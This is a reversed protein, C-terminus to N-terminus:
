KKDINLIFDIDEISAFVKEFSNNEIAELMIKEKEVLREYIRSDFNIKSNVLDFEQQLFYYQTYQEDKLGLRHIRDKSQLLHVLNYSYEYYVADHCVEHLSISEGLTHPNTILVQTGKKRFENILTEREEMRTRGNIVVSSIGINELHKHISNLSDNFIGWVIVKKNEETLKKLLELLESMKPTMDISMILEKLNESYDIREESKSKYDFVEQYDEINDTIASLLMKPNSELQLIRLILVLHNGTKMHAFYIAELIENMEKNAPLKIVKNENATPVGLQKKTTRVFFPYLKENIEQMDRDTPNNMKSKIDGFYSKIENRYLIELINGLDRYSNPIPTGTMTIIYQAEKSSEIAKESQKGEEKKIRHVEDFVLLTRDNIFKDYNQDFRKMSEYNVFVMNKGDIDGYRIRNRSESDSDHPTILDLKEHLIIQFENKWSDIANKPAIVVIRDIKNKSKLYAYAGLVTATKGAGPVSFNSSRKMKYLFFSDWMQSEKLERATLRTVEAKYEEYEFIIEEKKEKISSGIRSREKIYLQNKELYQYIYKEILLDFKELKSLETIEEIIYEMDKYSLGEHSIYESDSQKIFYTLIRSKMKPLRLLSTKNFLLLLKSDSLKLILDEEKKSELNEKSEERFKLLRNKIVTPIDLIYLGKEQYENNWMKEFMDYQDQIRTKEFESSLWNCTVHFSESNNVQGAITQNNSGIFVLKNGNADEVYGFKDHLRGVKKFAIKVELIGKEILYSIEGLRKREIGNEGSELGDLLSKITSERLQYGKKIEEFEENSIEKSVILKYKGKNEAFFKMGEIYESLSKSNFYASVRYFRNSNSLVPIFFDSAFDDELTSYSPKIKIKTLM